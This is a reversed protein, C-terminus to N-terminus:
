TWMYFLLLAQHSKRWSEGNVHMNEPTTERPLASPMAPTKGQSQCPLKARSRRKNYDTSM